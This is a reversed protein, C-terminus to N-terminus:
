LMCPINLKCEFLHKREFNTCFLILWFWGDKFVIKWFSSQLNNSLNQFLFFICIYMETNHFIHYYSWFLPFIIIIRKYTKQVFIFAFSSFRKMIFAYWSFVICKFRNSNECTSSAAESSLYFFCKSNDFFFVSFKIDKKKLM